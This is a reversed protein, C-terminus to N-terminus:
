GNASTRLFWPLPKTPDGERWRDLAVLYEVANMRRLLSKAGKSDGVTCAALFDAIVQERVVERRGNGTM